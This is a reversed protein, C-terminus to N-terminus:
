RVATAYISEFDRWSFDLKPDFSRLSVKLFGSSELINILNEEDFMYKHDGNNYAIYNIQDILSGTPCLAPEWISPSTALFDNGDLYSQIYLRSNPVAVSLIGSPKLVRYCEALLTKLNRFPIHELLHSTYIESVTGTPFPIGLRLDWPLDSKLSQDITLWGNSGSRAGSGIDIRIKPSGILFRARMWSAVYFPTKPWPM